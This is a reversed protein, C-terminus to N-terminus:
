DFKGLDGNLPPPRSIVLIGTAEDVRVFDGGGTHGWIRSQGRINYKTLGLSYAKELNSYYESGDQNEAEFFCPTLTMVEVAQSAKGFTFLACVKTNERTAAIDYDGNEQTSAPQIKLGLVPLQTRVQSVTM